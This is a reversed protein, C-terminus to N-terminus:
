LSLAMKHRINGYLSWGMVGNQLPLSGSTQPLALSVKLFPLVLQITFLFDHTISFTTDGHGAVEELQTHWTGIGEAGMFIISHLSVGVSVILAGGFKRGRVHKKGM